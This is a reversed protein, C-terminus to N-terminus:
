TCVAPARPVAQLSRLTASRRRWFARYPVSLARSLLPLWCNFCLIAFACHCLLLQARGLALSGARSYREQLLRNLLALCAFSAAHPPGDGRACPTVAGVLWRGPGHRDGILVLLLGPWPRRGYCRIIFLGTNVGRHGGGSHRPYAAGDAARRGCGHRFPHHTLWRCSVRVRRSSVCADYEEMKPCLRAPWRQRRLVRRVRACADSTTV